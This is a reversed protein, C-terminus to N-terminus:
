LLIFLMPGMPALFWMISALWSQLEREFPEMHKGRIFDSTEIVESIVNDIEDKISLYQKRLDVFPVEMM